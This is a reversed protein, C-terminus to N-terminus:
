GHILDRWIRCSITAVGAAHVDRRLQGDSTVVVAQVSDLPGRPAAHALERVSRGDSVVVVGPEVRGPEVRGLDVRGPEVRGLDVRGLDVVRTGHLFVVTIRTGFTNAAAACLELCRRDAVDPALDGWLEAMVSNGDVFVRSPVAPRGAMVQPGDRDRESDGDGEDSATGADDDPDPWLQVFVFLSIAITIFWWTGILRVLLGVRPLHVRAVGVIDDSTVAFQDPQDRNDGQIVLTGDADIGILRHIVLRGAGPGDPVAYVVVDGIELGDSSRAVVLDGTHFDPLMSNGKVIIFTTRGGWQSPWAFFVAAAIAM